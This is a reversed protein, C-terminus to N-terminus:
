PTTRPSGQRVLGPWVELMSRRGRAQEIQFRIFGGRADGVRDCWEAYALRPADDAPQALVAPRLRQEEASVSTGHRDRWTSSVREGASSSPRASASWDRPWR